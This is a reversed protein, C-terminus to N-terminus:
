IMRLITTLSDNTTLIVGTRKYCWRSRVGGGSGIMPVEFKWVVVVGHFAFLRWFGEVARTPGKIRM